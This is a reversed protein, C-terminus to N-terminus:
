ARQAVWGQADLADAHKASHEFCLLWDCWGYRTWRTVAKSPCLDCAM